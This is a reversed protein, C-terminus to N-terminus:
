SHDAVMLRSNGLSRPRHAPTELAEAVELLNQDLTVTFGHRALLAAMEGATWTSRWPERAWVSRRGTSAMLVRAM